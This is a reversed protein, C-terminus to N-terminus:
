NMLRALLAYHNVKNVAKSLVRARMDISSEASLQRQHRMHAVYARRIDQFVGVCRGVRLPRTAVHIWLLIVGHLIM